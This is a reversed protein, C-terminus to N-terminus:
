VSKVIPQCYEKWRAVWLELSQMFKETEELQDDRGFMIEVFKTHSRGVLAGGEGSLTRTPQECARLLERMDSMLKKGTNFFYQLVEEDEESGDGQLAEETQKHYGYLKILLLWLNGALKSLPSGPGYVEVAGDFIWKGLSNADFISGLLSIPREDPDWCKLDYTPPIGHKKADQLTAPRNKGAQLPQGASSGEGILESSMVIPCSKSRRRSRPKRNRRSGQHGNNSDEEPEIYASRHHVSPRTPRGRPSSYSDMPKWATSGPDHYRTPGYGYSRASVTHMKPYQPLYPYQHAQQYKSEQYSPPPPPEFGPVSISAERDSIDSSYCEAYSEPQAHGPSFGHGFQNSGTAM